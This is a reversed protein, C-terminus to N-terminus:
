DPPALECHQRPRHSTRTSGHRACDILELILACTDRAPPAYTAQRSPTHTLVLRWPWAALSARFPPPTAVARHKRRWDMGRASTAQDARAQQRDARQRRQMNNSCAAQRPDVWLASRQVDAFPENLQTATSSTLLLLVDLRTPMPHWRSARICATHRPRHDNAPPMLTCAMRVRNTSSCSM